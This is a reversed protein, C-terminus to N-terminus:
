KGKEAHLVTHGSGPNVRTEDTLEVRVPDFSPVSRLKLGATKAIRSALRAHAYVERLQQDRMM